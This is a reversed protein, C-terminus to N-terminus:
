AAPRLHFRVGGAQVEGTRGPLALVVEVIGRDGQVFVVEGGDVELRADGPAPLGLVAAWRAAAAHPDEVEVTIGELEGPAGAGARGTWDPGGWRWSAVPDPRDMSVIAGPVDAPHLHTAAIDPLDIEWAVRVGLDAVRARAAALDDVQFIAMYGGDGGLRELQRGAATGHQVPSVVEVFCDGVAMVANRLGFAAVNPDDYPEGLGLGEQLEEVVAELRAAVLVVQRLRVGRQIM